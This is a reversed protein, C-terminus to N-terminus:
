VQYDFSVEAGVLGIKSWYDRCIKYPCSVDPGEEQIAREGENSSEGPEACARNEHAPKSDVALVTHNANAVAVAKPSKSKEV